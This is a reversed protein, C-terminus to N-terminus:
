SLCPQWDRISANSLFQKIIVSTNGSVGFSRNRIATNRQNCNFFLYHNYMLKLFYFYVIKGSLSNEDLSLSIVKMGATDCEVGYWNCYSLTAHTWNGSNVWNVGNAEQYLM